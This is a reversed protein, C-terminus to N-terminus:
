KVIEILEIDFILISNPPIKAGVQRPGYALGSPIIIKGSGGEKLLPIGEQWGRVVNKLPFTTPKNRKYSSDFETGDLLTGKYHVTVKDNITPNAGTGEKEIVYHIGSPTVKTELGKDSVFNAIIEADTKAQEQPNTAAPKPPTQTTNETKAPEEKKTEEATNCAAFVFLVLTFIYFLNKM